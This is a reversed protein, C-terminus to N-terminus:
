SERYFESLAIATAVGANLSELGKRGGPIRVLHDCFQRTRQRLGEGEAGVVFVTKDSFETQALTKEGREDLGYVWFGHEKLADLSRALNTVRFVKIFEAGGVAVRVAVPTVDTSRNRLLLIADVGFFAANRLMTGLNQPNNIQDLALVCRADKLIDLEGESYIHRPRALIFVGQHNEDDVFGGARNFAEWGLIQMPIDHEQAMLIFEEPPDLKGSLLYLEKIAKPREQFVARVSHKGYLREMDAPMDLPKPKLKPKPRTKAKDAQRAKAATKKKGLTRPPKPKAM